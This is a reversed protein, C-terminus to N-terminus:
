KKARSAKKAPSVAKPRKPAPKTEKGTKVGRGAVAKPQNDTQGKDGSVKPAPGADTIEVRQVSAKGKARKASGAAFERNAFLRLTGNKALLYSGDERKVTWGKM